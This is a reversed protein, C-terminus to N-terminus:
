FGKNELRSVIKERDIWDQYMNRHSCKKEEDKGQFPCHSLQIFKEAWKGDQICYVDFRKFIGEEELLICKGKFTFKGRYYFPCM